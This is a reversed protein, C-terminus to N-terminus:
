FLNLMMNKEGERLDHTFYFCSSRIQLLFVFGFHEGADDLFDSTPGRLSMRM